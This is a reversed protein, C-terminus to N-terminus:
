CYVSQLTGMGTLVVDTLTDLMAAELDADDQQESEIGGPPEAASTGGFSDGNAYPSHVRSPTSSSPFSSGNPLLDSAFPGEAASGADGNDLDPAPSAAGPADPLHTALLFAEFADALVSWCGDPAPQEGTVAAIGVAPLGASVVATFTTVAARWLNGGFPTFRLALCQAMAQVVAPFPAARAEWPVQDRCCAGWM